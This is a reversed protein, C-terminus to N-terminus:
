GEEGVQTETDQNMLDLWLVHLETADHAARLFQFTKGARKPGDVVCWGPSRLQVPLSERAGPSWFV